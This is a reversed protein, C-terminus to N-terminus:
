EKLMPEFVEKFIQMRNNTYDRCQGIDTIEEDWERDYNMHKILPIGGEGVGVRLEPHHQNMYAIALFARKTFNNMTITDFSLGACFKDATDAGSGIAKYRKIEQTNGNFDIYHLESHRYQHKV